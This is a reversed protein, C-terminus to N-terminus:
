QADPTPGAAGGPAGASALGVPDGGSSAVLRAVVFRANDDLVEDPVRPLLEEWWPLFSGRLQPIRAPPGMVWWHLHASGGGWRLM